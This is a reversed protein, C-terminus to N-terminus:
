WLDSSDDASAGRWWKPHRFALTRRQGREAYGRGLKGRGRHVADGSRRREDGGCRTVETEPQGEVGHARHVARHDTSAQRHRGECSPQWRGPLAQNTVSRRAREHECRDTGPVEPASGRPHGGQEGPQWPRGADGREFSGHAGRAVAEDPASAGLGGNGAPQAARPLSRPGEGTRRHLRGTTILLRRRVRAADRAGRVAPQLGRSGRV